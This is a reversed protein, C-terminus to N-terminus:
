PAGDDGAGTWVQPCVRHPLVVPPREGSGPVLQDAFRDEHDVDTRLFLYIFYFNFFEGSRGNGKKMWSSITYSKGAGGGLHIMEERIAAAASASRIGVTRRTHESGGSTRGAGTRAPPRPRSQARRTRMRVATRTRRRESVQPAHPAPLEPKLRGAGTKISLVALGHDGVSNVQVGGALSVPAQALLPRTETPVTGRKPDGM